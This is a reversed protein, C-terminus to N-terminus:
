EVRQLVKQSFLWDDVWLSVPAFRHRTLAMLGPMLPGTSFRVICDPGFHNAAGRYADLYGAVLVGTNWLDHRIYASECCIYAEPEIELRTLVWGVLAGARWRAMNCFQCETRDLWDMVESVYEADVPKVYTPLIQTSAHGLRLDFIRGRCSM